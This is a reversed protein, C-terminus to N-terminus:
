SRWPRKWSRWPWAYRLVVADDMQALAADMLAVPEDMLTLNDGVIAFGM